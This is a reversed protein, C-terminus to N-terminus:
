RCCKWTLSVHYSHLQALAARLKSLRSTPEPGALNQLEQWDGDVYATHLRLRLGAKFSLVTALLQPLRLRANLPLDRLQPSAAEDPAAAGPSLRETLHAALAAYHAELDLGSAQVSPSVFGLAPEEWLLWKSTNAAFHIRDDLRGRRTCTLL